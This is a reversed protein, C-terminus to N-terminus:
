FFLTAMRIWGPIHSYDFDKDIVMNATFLASLTEGRM